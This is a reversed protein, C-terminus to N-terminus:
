KCTVEKGKIVIVNNQFNKKVFASGTGLFFMELSGNNTLRLTGDITTLKIERLMNLNHHLLAAFEVRSQM